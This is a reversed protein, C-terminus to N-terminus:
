LLWGEERISPSSWGFPLLLDGGSQEMWVLRAKPLVLVHSHMASSQSRQLCVMAAHLLQHISWWGVPHGEVVEAGDGARELLWRYIWVKLLVL